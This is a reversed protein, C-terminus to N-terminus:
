EEEVRVISIRDIKDGVNITKAVDLGTVVEGFVTYDGDLGPLSKLTIYFQSGSQREEGPLKAMAIAGPTHKHPSEEPEIYHSSGTGDPNTAGTQILQGKLKRHFNLGNYFGDNVMEIFNETTIPADKFLEVEIVGKETEIVAVDTGAELKLAEESLEPLPEVEVEEETEEVPELVEEEQEDKGCGFVVFIVILFIIAIKLDRM